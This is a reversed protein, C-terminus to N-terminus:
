RRPPALVDRDKSGSAHMNDERRRRKEKAQNRSLGTIASVKRGNLKIYPWTQRWNGQRDKYLGDQM